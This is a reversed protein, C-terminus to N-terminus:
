SPALYKMLLIVNCENFVNHNKSCDSLKLIKIKPEM